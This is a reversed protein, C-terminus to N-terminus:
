NKSIYQHLEENMKSLKTMMSDFAEADKAYVLSKFQAFVENKEEVSLLLESVKKRFYKLVHFYCLLVSAARLANQGSDIEDQDKHLMM